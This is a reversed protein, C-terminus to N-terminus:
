SVSAMEASIRESTALFAILDEVERQHAPTLDTLRCIMREMRAYDSSTMVVLHAYEGASGVLVPEVLAKRQIERWGLTDSPTSIRQMLHMKM